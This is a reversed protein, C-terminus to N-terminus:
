VPEGVTHYYCQTLLIIGPLLGDNHQVSVNIAMCPCWVFFLFVVFAFCFSRLVYNFLTTIIYSVLAPHTLYLIPYSTTITFVYTKPEVPCLPGGGDDYIDEAYDYDLFCPVGTNM